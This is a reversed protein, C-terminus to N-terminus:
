KQGALRRAPAHSALKGAVCALTEESPQQMLIGEVTDILNHRSAPHGWLNRWLWPKEGSAERSSAAAFLYIIILILRQQMIEQPLDPAFRRLHVMCRRTGKDIGGQLAEFILDRHNIMMMNLFRLAYNDRVGGASDITPYFILIDVVEHISRPGGRSELEDLRRNHDDDLLRATDAILERVLEEKSQFYYNISGANKQGAAKVIERISVDDLGRTSFLKRAALKIQQRTVEGKQMENLVSKRTRKTKKVVKIM